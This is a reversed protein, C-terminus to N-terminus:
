ALRSSLDQCTYILPGLRPAGLLSTALHRAAARISGCLWRGGPPNRLVEAPHYRAQAGAERDQLGHPYVLVEATEEKGFQDGGVECLAM